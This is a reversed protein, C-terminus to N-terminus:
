CLFLRLFPINKLIKKASEQNIQCGQQRFNQLKQKSQYKIKAIKNINALYQTISQKTLDADGTAFVASVRRLIYALIARKSYYSMDTSTDKSLWWLSDALNYYFKTKFAINYATKEINLLQKVIAPQTTAFYNILLFDIKQTIKLTFFDTNIIQALQNIQQQQMFNIADYFGDAFIFPLYNVPIQCDICALQLNHQNFGNNKAIELYKDLIKQKTVVSDLIM